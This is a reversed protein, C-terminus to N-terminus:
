APPAATPRHWRHQFAARSLEERIAVLKVWHLAFCGLGAASLSAWAASPFPALFQLLECLVALWGYLWWGGNANAGVETDQIAQRLEVLLAVFWLFGVFPILLLWVSAGPARGGQARVVAATKRFSLAYLLASAVYAAAALLVVTGTLLLGGISAGM